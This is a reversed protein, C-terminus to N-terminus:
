EDSHHKNLWEQFMIISWVINRYRNQGNHFSKWLSRTMAPNLYGEKAIKNTDLLAEAWERLPGKLWQSIPVSFGRKEGKTLEEPVYRKLCEKLLWKASGGRLKYGLPLQLAYGVFKYDLLPNRVELSSAMSARDMKVLIDDPLWNRVDHRMMQELASLPSDPCFGASNNTTGTNGAGLVLTEAIVLRQERLRFLDMASRCRLLQNFRHYGDNRARLPRLPALLQAAASRLSQPWRALRDWKDVASQYRNYGCFLEDGGDGSLCVTVEQRALKCVVYSPLQSIDAFPEDYTLALDPIYEILENASVYYETHQTGLHAAIAKARPAENYKEEHFGITFTRAPEQSVAQMHAVVLSSDIGGSLFAGLPVDSVLRSKVSQRILDNCSTVIERDDPFGSVDTTCEINDISWYSKMRISHTAPDITLYNGQPLKHIGHYITDPCPIYAYRFFSALANRDIEGKFDPHQRLARLESSFFFNGHQWGYYLPKKGLRDRALMLQRSQKDWVAFAFMGNAAALARELGWHSIAELLVETDSNGLFHVGEDNLQRSLEPFNYIEGNYSIVYRGCQSVMPQHGAQSLDLISLRAHGLAVGDPASVWTGSGDPGRHSLSAVMRQMVGQMEDASGSPRAITYGAIGCM